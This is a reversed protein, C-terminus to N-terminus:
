CGWGLLVLLGRYCLGLAAWALGSAIVVACFPGLPNM